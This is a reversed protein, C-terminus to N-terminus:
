KNGFFPAEFDLFFVFEANQNLGEGRSGRKGRLEHMDASIALMAQAKNSRIAVARLAGVVHILICNLICAMSGFKLLGLACCGQNKNPRQGGAHM